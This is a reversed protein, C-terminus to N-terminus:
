LFSYDKSYRLMQKVYDDPYEIKIDVIKGDKIEQSIVNEPKGKEYVWYSVLARSRMHAQEITKGPQIRTLQTMLGNSINADYSAKAADLTPLLGLEVIKDDM